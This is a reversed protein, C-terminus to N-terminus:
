LEADAVLETYYAYTTTADVWIDTSHSNVHQTGRNNGPTGSFTVTVSPNLRMVVPFMHCSRRYSDNDDINFLWRYTTGPNDSSDYRYYYRFCDRKEEAYSRHEFPTARDGVELQVGTLDFQANLTELFTHGFDPVYADQQSSRSYWDTTSVEEGGSYGTGYDQIWILYVGRGTNNDIQLNSNGQIQLNVKTWTDAALTYQITRLYESGDETRLQVIYTGAVSSRAWFSLHLYSSSSTYNWGSNALDQAEVSYNIQAYDTTGGSGATTVKQRLFYRFGEDYPSGSSLSQQSQTVTPGNHAPQFRDVTGYTALTSSTGRQAVRMGGNIVLNRRGHVSTDAIQDTTITNDTISKAVIKSLPM